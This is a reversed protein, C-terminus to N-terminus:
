RALRAIATMAEDLKDQAVAGGERVAASVCHDLHDKLLAMSVAKLANSVAAIQTMVDICYADSEVMRAIGRTQGEILRLRRLYAQKEDSYGHRGENEVIM